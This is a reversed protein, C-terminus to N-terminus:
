AKVLHAERQRNSGAGLSAQLERLLARDGLLGAALVYPELAISPAPARLQAEIEPLITRDGLRGLSLAASGRLEPDGTRWVTEITATSEREGLLGLAIVAAERLSSPRASDRVCARLPQNAETDKTLGLGIAAFARVEVNADSELAAALVKVCGAEA